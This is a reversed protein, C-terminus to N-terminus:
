LPVLNCLSLKNQKKIKWPAHGQDGRPGLYAQAKPKPIELKQTAGMINNVCQVAICFNVKCILRSSTPRSGEFDLSVFLKETMTLTFDTFSGITNTYPNRRQIVM